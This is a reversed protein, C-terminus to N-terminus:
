RDATLSDLAQVIYDFKSKQTTINRTAFLSEIQAFWVEPNSQWFQPLKVLTANTQLAQVLAQINEQSLSM